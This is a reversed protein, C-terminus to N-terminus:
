GQLLLSKFRVFFPNSSPTMLIVQSHPYIDTNTVMCGYNYLTPTQYKSTTVTM